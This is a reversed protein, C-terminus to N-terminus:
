ASWGITALVDISKEEMQIVEITETLLNSPISESIRTYEKDLGRLAIENLTNAGRWRWIRRVDKLLVEKGNRAELVGFHVGASFTRIIVKKGILHKGISGQDETMVGGVTKSNFTTMSEGSVLFGGDGFM